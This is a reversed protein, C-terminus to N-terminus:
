RIQKCFQVAFDQDGSLCRHNVALAKRIRDVTRVLPATLQQVIEAPPHEELEKVTKVGLFEFVQRAEYDKLFMQDLDATGPVRPRGLTASPKAAVRKRKAFSTAAAAQKGAAAAKKAPRKQAAPKKKAVTRKATSSKAARKASSKKVARKAATSPKASRSINVVKATKKKAM